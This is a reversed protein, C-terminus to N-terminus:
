SGTTTSKSKLWASVECQIEGYAPAFAASMLPEFEGWIEGVRHLPNPRSLRKGVGALSRLVESEERYATFLGRRDAYAMFRHLRDPLLEGHRALLARVGLDFDELSENSYRRWQKALEHDFALDIIIGGYRRFPPPLTTRLRAIEHQVDSYADIHRHLRIGLRVERDFQELARSGRVFDGLMAGLKLGEDDGALHLHALFNM